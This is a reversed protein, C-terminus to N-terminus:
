RQSEESYKIQMQPLCLVVHLDDVLSFVAASHHHINSDSTTGRAAVQKSSLQASYPTVTLRFHDRTCRSTQQNQRDTPQRGKRM